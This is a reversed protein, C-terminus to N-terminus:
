NAQRAAFVEEDTKADQCEDLDISMTGAGECEECDDQDWDEDDENAECTPCDVWLTMSILLTGVPASWPKPTAWFSFGDASLENENCLFDSGRSNLVWITNPDLKQKEAETVEIPEGYTALFEKWRKVEDLLYGM